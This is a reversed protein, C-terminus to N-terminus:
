RISCVRLVADIDNTAFDAGTKGALGKEDAALVTGGVIVPIDRGGVKKINGVFDPLKALKEVNSVSLLVADYKSYKLVNMVDADSRGVVLRVSLGRRRLKYTLILAGLTHQEDGRVLVLVGVGNKKDSNGRTLDAGMARVLGQLRASGISVEAFGHTDDCWGEGLRRAAEACYVEVITDRSIGMGLMKEVVRTKRSQMPDCVAECLENLFRIDPEAERVSKRAALHLLAQTALSQLPHRGLGDSENARRVRHQFGDEM